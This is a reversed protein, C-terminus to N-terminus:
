ILRKEILSLMVSPPYHLKPYSPGSLKLGPFTYFPLSGYIAYHAETQLLGTGFTASAGTLQNGRVPYHRGWYEHRHTALSGNLRKGGIVEPSQAYGHDHSIGIVEIQSRAYLDDLPSPPQV